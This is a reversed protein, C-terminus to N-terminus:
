EPAVFFLIIKINIKNIKMKNTIKKLCAKAEQIHDSWVDDHFCQLYYM